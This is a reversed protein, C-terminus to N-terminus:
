SGHARTAYQGLGRELVAFARRAQARLDRALRVPEDEGALTRRRVFDILARHVGILAGAVARPEVDEPRGGTEEAILSALSETYREFVQQERARLAPSATIVQTIARLRRRVEDSGEVELKGFVGRPDLLFRRFADLVSEDPKRRRVAELLEEEFTEMRHYFLDEKTPFYNFVTKESVDAARAIEAVSVGEFGRQEFLRRATEAILERTKLKKRERLGPEDRTATKM